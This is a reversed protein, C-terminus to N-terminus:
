PEYSEEVEDGNLDTIKYTPPETYLIKYIDRRDM